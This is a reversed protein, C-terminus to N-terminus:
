ITPYKKLCATLYTLNTEDLGSLAINYVEDYAGEIQKRLMVNYARSDGPRRERKVYGKNELSAVTRSIAAKGIDLRRAM